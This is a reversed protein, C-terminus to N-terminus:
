SIPDIDHDEVSTRDPGYPLRWSHLHTWHLDIWWPGSWDSHRFEYVAIVRADFEPPVSVGLGEAYARVEERLEPRAELDHSALSLHGYWRNSERVDAALTGPAIPSLLPRVAADVTAALDVLPANPTGHRDHVDYILSGGLWGIGANSVPFSTRPELVDDLVGALPAADDGDLPLSGVLTVHPPFASASVLGYQARLQGTIRTVAAATQPDPILFVGYRKLETM